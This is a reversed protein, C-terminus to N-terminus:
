CCRTLTFLARRAASCCRCHHTSCPPHPAPPQKVPRWPPPARAAETIRVEGGKFGRLAYSAVLENDDYLGPLLLRRRHPPSLPGELAAAATHHIGLEESLGRMAADVFCEGPALHEAVSLDWQCAGIKKDASRRQLLLRGSADFVFVYVARHLLGSAHVERRPRVDIVIGEENVIDFLEDAPDAEVPPAHLPISTQVASM